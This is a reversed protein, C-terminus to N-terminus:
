AHLREMLLDVECYLNAFTLHNNVVFRPFRDLDVNESMHANV